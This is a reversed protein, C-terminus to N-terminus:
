HAGNEYLQLSLRWDPDFDPAKSAAKESGFWALRRELHRTIPNETIELEAPLVRIGIAKLQHFDYGKRGIPSDKSPFIGAGWGWETGLDLTAKTGLPLRSIRRTKEAHKISETASRLVNKGFASITPKYGIGMVLQRGDPLDFVMADGRRFFSVVKGSKMLVFGPWVEYRDEWVASETIEVGNVEITVTARYRIEYSPYALRYVVVVLALATAITLSVSRPVRRVFLVVCWIIFLWSAIQMASRMATEGLTWYTAPYLSMLVLVPYVIKRM